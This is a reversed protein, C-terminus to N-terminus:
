IGSWGQGSECEKVIQAKWCWERGGVAETAEDGVVQRIGREAVAESAM